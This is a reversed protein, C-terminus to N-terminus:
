WPNRFLRYGLRGAWSKAYYEEITLTPVDGQGRRDLDGHHRPPRRPRPALERVAAVFLRATFRGFWRNAARFRFSGHTCDHFVIFTRLLFGGAPIALALTLLVSVDVGLYGDSRGCRRSPIVSTVIDLLSRGLRPRAGLRRTRWHTRARM